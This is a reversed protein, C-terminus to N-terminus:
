LVTVIEGEMLKAFISICVNLVKKVKESGVFVWNGEENWERLDYGLLETGKTNLNKLMTVHVDLFHM